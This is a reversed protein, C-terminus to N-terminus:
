SPKIQEDIEEPNVLIEANPITASRFEFNETEEDPVADRRTMRIAAFGATVLAIPIAAYMFAKSGVIPTIATVIAPFIFAAVSWAVLMTSALPVYDNPNARDNAHANSVSYITETAGSWAAFILVTLLLGNFPIIAAGTALVCALLCTTVLVYRRDIRDSIAGLPLQIALMGLQMLFMLLAIDRQGLNNAAAYIPTFGQVLMSLGGSAAIGILGVPSIKWTKKLDIDVREPPPPTALRTLGIPLIGAAAFMIALVPASAGNDPLFGFIFAGTGVGVVYAMYFVSIAKGRWSNDSSHNLWSQTVIFNGNSALGYLFRAFLWNEPDINLAIISASLVVLAACCAFARAHGVRRIIPGAILCGIIGGAAIATVASGAIWAPYGNQALAFPIYAFMLGSGLAMMTMSLVISTISVLPSPKAPLLISLLSKQM